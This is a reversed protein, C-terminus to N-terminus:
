KSEKDSFEPNKYNCVDCGLPTKNHFWRPFCCYFFTYTLFKSIIQLEIGTYPNSTPEFNYLESFKCLCSGVYHSLM